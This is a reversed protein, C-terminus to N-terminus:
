NKASARKKKSRKKKKQKDEEELEKLLDIASQESNVLRNLYDVGEEFNDAVCVDLATNGDSNVFDVEIKTNECLYKILKLDKRFAVYHLITQGESDRLNVDAGAELVMKLCEVSQVCHISM